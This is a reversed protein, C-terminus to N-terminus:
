ARDVAQAMEADGVRLALQTSDVVDTLLLTHSHSM